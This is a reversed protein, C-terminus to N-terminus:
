FGGRGGGLGGGGIGGGGLGGGGSGSGNTGGTGNTQGGRPTDADIEAAEEGPTGFAAPRTLRVLSEPDPVALDGLTAVVVRRRAADTAADDSPEVVVPRRAAAVSRGIQVVHRRGYETLAAPADADASWEYRYVVRQDAAAAASQRANVADVHWGNELPPVDAGPGGCGGVMALGTTVCLTLAHRNLTLRM